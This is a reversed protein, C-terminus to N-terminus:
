VRDDEEHHDVGAQAQAVIRRKFEVFRAVANKDLVNKKPIRVTVTRQTWDVQYSIQEKFYAQIYLWYARDREAEYLFLIVPM